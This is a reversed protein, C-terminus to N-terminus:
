RFITLKVKYVNNDVSNNLEYKNKYLLSLRKEILEKGLGGFSQGNSKDVEFSNSCIFQVFHDSIEFGITVFGPEGKSYHKFANEIFPIFVMPEIFWGNSIGKVEMRINQPFSTRIRQLAVFKEVYEIEKEIPIKSNKTEYLMFRIIDSLKNLYLSAQSGDKEILMDINNITNFLFHPDIQSKILSIEMEYNRKNLEEKLQIDNYWGVFGRIVLGMIANVLVIVALIFLVIIASNGDASWFAPSIQISIIAAGVFASVISVGVLMALLIAFKRARLFKFLFFYSTYFGIAGPVIATGFMLKGWNLFDTIHLSHLKPAAFFLYFLMLLVLYMLWYGIQLITALVKGM